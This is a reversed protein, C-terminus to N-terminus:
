IESKSALRQFLIAGVTVSIVSTLVMIYFISPESFATGLAFLILTALSTLASAVGNVRGRVGEPISRQRIETEGLGFGYLGIRSLLILGLFAWGSYMKFFFTPLSLLLVGAQFVIFLKTSTVLGFKSRLWPFLLTALLGFLAGLGRFIGLEFESMKWGTKLFSTLLIGHPSLASLWLFAFAIMALAAPQCRFSEWGKLLKKLFNQKSDNPVILMTKQLLPSNQFVSRLLFLEPIFSIFNWVAVLIFGLLPFAPSKIALMLGVIVPTVVETFLDLQKLRGNMHGLRDPPLSSPIWDNGVAIDMLGAGLNASVSGLTIVFLLPIFASSESHTVLLAVGLSVCLVSIVQFVTGFLVTKMRPWTDIFGSLWPALVFTGLKSLLYVFSILGVNHPLVTLLTMPLAFDWAQDGSRTLLRSLMIKNELSSTQAKSL